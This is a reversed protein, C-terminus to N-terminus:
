YLDLTITRNTARLSFSSHFVPHLMAGSCWVMDQLLFARTETPGRGMHEKEFRTIADAIEAELQGQTKVGSLM